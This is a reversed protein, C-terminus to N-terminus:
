EGKQVLAELAKLRRETDALAVALDVGGLRTQIDRVDRVLRDFTVTGTLGRESVEAWMEETPPRSLVLITPHHGVGRQLIRLCDMAELPRMARRETGRPIGLEACTKTLSGTWITVKEGQIVKETSNSHFHAYLANAYQQTKPQEM